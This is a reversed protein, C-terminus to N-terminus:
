GAAHITLLTIAAAVTTAAAPTLSWSGARHCIM